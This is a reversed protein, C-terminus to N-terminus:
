ERAGGSETIETARIQIKDLVNLFTDMEEEGIGESLLATWKKAIQVVEAHIGTMKGTPYVLMERKDAESPKREIYGNQELYALHRTVSSKTMCLHKAIKDQSMGPNKCIAFVYSHYIGPLQVSSNQTRYMGACRAIINLKRMFMAM